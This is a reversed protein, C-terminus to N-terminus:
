HESLPSLFIRKSEMSSVRSVCLFNNEGLADLSRFNQVSSEPYKGKENRIDVTM